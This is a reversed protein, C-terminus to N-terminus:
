LFDSVLKGFIMKWFKLFIMMFKSFELIKLFQSVRIYIVILLEELCFETEM